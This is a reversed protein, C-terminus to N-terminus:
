YHLTHLKKRTPLIELPLFLDDFVPAKKRVSEVKGPIQGKWTLSPYPISESDKKVRLEKDM